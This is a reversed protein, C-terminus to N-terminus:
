LKNPSAKTHMVPTCSSAYVSKEFFQCWPERQQLRHRTLLYPFVLFLLRGLLQLTASKCTCAGHAHRSITSQSLVPSTPVDTWLAETSENTKTSQSTKHSRFHRREAQRVFPICWKRGEGIKIAKILAVNQYGSM